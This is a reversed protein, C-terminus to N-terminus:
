EFFTGLKRQQLIHKASLIFCEKTRMAYTRIQEEEADGLLELHLQKIDVNLIQSNLQVGWM